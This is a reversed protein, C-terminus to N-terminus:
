WIERGVPGAEFQERNRRRYSAPKIDTVIREIPRRPRRSSAKRMVIAEGSTSLDLATGPSLEMEQTVIRPLLVAMSGGVKKVTVTM